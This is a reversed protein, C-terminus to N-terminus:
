AGGAASMTLWCGVSAMSVRAVVGIDVMISMSMRILSIISM